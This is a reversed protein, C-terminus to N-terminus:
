ELLNQREHGVGKNEYSKRVVEELSPEIKTRSRAAPPEDEWRQQNLWTAPNPVFRGAEKRWDALERQWALADLM